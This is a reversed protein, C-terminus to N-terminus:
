ANTNVKSHHSFPLAKRSGIIGLMILCKRLHCSEKRYVM